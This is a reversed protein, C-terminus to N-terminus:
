HAADECTSERIRLSDDGPGYEHREPFPHVSDGGSQLWATLLQPPPIWGVDRRDVDDTRNAPLLTLFVATAITTAFPEGTPLCFVMRDLEWLGASLGRSWGNRQLRQAQAPEAIQKKAPMRTNGM